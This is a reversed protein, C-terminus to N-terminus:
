PDGDSHDARLNEGADCLAYLSDGHHDGLADRAGASFDACIRDPDRRLLVFYLVTFLGLSILDKAQINNM